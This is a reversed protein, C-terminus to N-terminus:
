KMKCFHKVTTAIKWWIHFPILPAVPGCAFQLIECMQLADLRLSQLVICVQLARYRVFDLRVKAIDRRAVELAAAHVSLDVAALEQRPTVSNEDVVDLDAGAALLAHVALANQTSAAKHLPTRCEDDSVCVDAGAAILSLLCQYDRYDSAMLLPPWDWASNVEAGAEILWRLAAVNGVEVAIDVCTQNDDNRAELDVGCVNVLMDLVDVRFHCAAVHLPTGGNACSLDSVVVGRDLLAQIAATSTAALQCLRSPEVRDLSAGAELLMLACRESHWRLAWGLASLRDHVDVIALNPQRALLLALVEDRDLEAAVHCATLGKENTVDIRANARL